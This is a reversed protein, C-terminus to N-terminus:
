QAGGKLSTARAAAEVARQLNQMRRSEASAKIRNADQESPRKGSAPAAIQARLDALKRRKADLDAIQNNHNALFEAQRRAIVAVDNEGDGFLFDQRDAELVRSDAHIETLLQVYAQAAANPSQRDVAAAAASPAPKTEETQAQVARIGLFAISLVSLVLLCVAKPRIKFKKM